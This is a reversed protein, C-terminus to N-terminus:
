MFIAKVELVNVSVLVKEVQNPILHSTGGSGRKIRLMM